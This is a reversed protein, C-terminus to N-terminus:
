ALRTPTSLQQFHKFNSLFTLASVSLLPLWLQTHLSPVNKGHFGVPLFPILAEISCQEHCWSFLNLFRKCTPNLRLDYAHHPIIFM